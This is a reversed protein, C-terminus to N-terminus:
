RRKDTTGHKQGTLAAFVEAATMGKGTEPERSGIGSKHLFTKIPRHTPDVLNCLLAHREDDAAPWWEELLGFGQWEVLQSASMEALMADVDPRRMALAMRM